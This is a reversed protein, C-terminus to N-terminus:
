SAHTEFDFTLVRNLFHLKCAFFEIFVFMLAEPEVEEKWYKKIQNTFESQSLEDLFSKM